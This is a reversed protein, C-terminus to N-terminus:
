RFQHVPISRFVCNAQYEPHLKQLEYKGIVEKFGQNPLAENVNEWAIDMGTMFSCDYGSGTFPITIATPLKTYRYKSAFLRAFPSVVTLNEISGITANSVSQYHQFVIDEKMHKRLGYIIEDNETALNLLYNSWSECMLIVINPQQVSLTDAVKAFLVQRISNLTDTTLSYEGLTAIAENLDNFGYEILLEDTSKADFIKSKDKFAKKLMYPANPIIDNFVRNDSIVTDEIQLPFSRLSGRMAIVLFTLYCILLPIGGGCFILSETKFIKKSYVWVLAAITVIGSLIWLLPYDQWFTVILSEPNENFFDFLTINIHSNFNLYFGLDIIGLLTLLVSIITIYIRCVLVATKRIPKYLAAFSLLTPLILMYATVQFDFRLSNYLLIPISHRYEAITDASVFLIIYCVRFLLMICIPVIAISLLLKIIKKM